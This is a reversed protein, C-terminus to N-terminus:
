IKKNFRKILTKFINKDKEKKVQKKLINFVQKAFLRRLIKFGESSIGIKKIIEGKNKKWRYLYERLSENIRKNKINKILKM